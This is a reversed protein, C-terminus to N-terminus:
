EARPSEIPVWAQWSTRDKCCDSYALIDVTCPPLFPFVDLPDPLVTGDAAEMDVKIEMPQVNVTFVGKQSSEDLYTKIIMENTTLSLVQFVKHGCPERPDAFSVYGFPKLATALWNRLMQLDDNSRDPDDSKRDLAPSPLSIQNAASRGVVAM